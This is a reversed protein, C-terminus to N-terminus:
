VELRPHCDFLKPVVQFVVEGYAKRYGRSPDTEAHCVSTGSGYCVDKRCLPGKCPVWFLTPCAFAMRSRVSFYPLELQEHLNSRKVRLSAHLLEQHNTKSPDDPQKMSSGSHNMLKSGVSTPHRM